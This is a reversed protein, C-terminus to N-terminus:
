TAQSHRPASSTTAGLHWGSFWALSGAAWARRRPRQEQGLARQLPASRERSVRRGSETARALLAKARARARHDGQRPARQDTRRM